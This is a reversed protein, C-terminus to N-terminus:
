QYPFWFTALPALDLTLTVRCYRGTALPRHSASVAGAELLSVVGAMSLHMDHAEVQVEGRVPSLHSARSAAEGNLAAILDGVDGHLHLISAATPHDARVREPLRDRLQRRARDLIEVRAPPPVLSAQRASDPPNV